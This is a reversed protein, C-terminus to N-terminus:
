EFCVLSGAFSQQMTGAVLAPSVRPSVAEEAEVSLKGAAMGYGVAEILSKGQLLGWV